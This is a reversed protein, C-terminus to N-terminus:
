FFFFIRCSGALKMPHLPGEHTTNGKVVLLVGSVARGKGRSERDGTTHAEM